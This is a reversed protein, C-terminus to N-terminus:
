QPFPTQYNTQPISSLEYLGRKGAIGTGVGAATGAAGTLLSAIGGGAILGGSGGLIGGGAPLIDALGKVVKQGGSLSPQQPESMSQQTNQAMDYRASDFKSSDITGTQGTAKQVVRIRAM